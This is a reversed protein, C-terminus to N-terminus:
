SVKILRKYSPGKCSYMMPFVFKNMVDYIDDLDLKFEPTKGAEVMKKKRKCWKM